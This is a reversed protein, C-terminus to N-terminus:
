RVLAVHRQTTVSTGDTFTMDLHVVYVGSPAPKGRQTGDWGPQPANLDAVLEGWRNIIRMRFSNLPHSRVGLFENLGDGNPSFQDALFWQMPALVCLPHAASAACNGDISATLQVLVNGPLDPSWTATPGQTQALVEGTGPERFWWAETTAGGGENVLLVPLESWEVCDAPWNVEATVEPHAPVAYVGSAACGEAPWSLTWPVQAGAAASLAWWTTDPTVDDPVTLLTDWTLEWPAGPLIWAEVEATGEFCATDPTSLQLAAPVLVGVYVSDSVPTGCGDSLEAVWWTSSDPVWPLPVTLNWSYDIPAGGAGEATIAATDGACILPDALALTLTLPEPVTVTFATDSACYTGQWAAAVAYLGPQLTDPLISDAEAGAWTWTTGTAPTWTPVFPLGACLTDPAAAPQVQQWPEVTYQSSSICGGPASYSVAGTPAAESPTFWGTVPDVGAGQWQGGPPLDAPALAFPDATNCLAITPLPIEGPWVGVPIEVACGGIAYTLVHEGLPVAAPDLVASCGGALGAGGWSATWEGCPPTAELVTPSASGCTALSDLALTPFANVIQTTAACGNPATYTLTVSSGASPDFLGGPTVGPGTWSGGLPLAGELQVADGEPCATTDPAASIALINAQAPQSCGTLECNWTALGVPVESPDFATATPDLGPGTWTGAEVVVPLLVPDANACVEGIQYPPLVGIIQVTATDSCGQGSLVIEFTGIANPFITGTPSIIQGSWVANVGVATGDVAFEPAGFCTAYPGGADVVVAQVATDLTCGLATTYTMAAAGGAAAAAEADLFWAGGQETVTGTWTGGAPAAVLEVPDSGVCLAEPLASELVVAEEGVSWSFSSVKGSVAETVVLFVQAGACMVVGAADPTDVVAGGGTQTWVWSVDFCGSPAWWLTDCAGECLTEVPDIWEGAVPCTTASAAGEVTFVHVSDCADALGLGWTVDWSCNAALAGDAFPVFFGTASDGECVVEPAGLGVGGDFVLSDAVWAACPVPPQIAWTLGADGCASEEAVLVPPTPPPAQSEWLLNFGCYNVSQDSQFIFTVMGSMATVAEPVFDVGTVTALNLGSDAPGDIIQLQDFPSELCVDELFSVQIPIGPALDVVFVYFENGGYDDGAGGTDTLVGTCESSGVEDITFETQGKGVLAALLLIALAWGKM